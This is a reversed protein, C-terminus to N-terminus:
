LEDQVPEQEVGSQLAEEEYGIDSVGSIFEIACLGVELDEQDLLTQSPPNFSKSTTENSSFNQQTKM